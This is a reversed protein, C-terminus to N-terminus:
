IKEIMEHLAKGFAEKTFNDEYVKRGNRGIQQMQERNEIVFELKKQLEAADESRFTLGNEGDRLLGYTGTNDSCIVPVGLMLSETMFVPMPDDRSTCVVVDSQRYVDAIEERTVQMITRVSEPYDRQLLEIKHYVAEDNNKGVFVFLCKEIDERRMGRVADVFVDQAKRKDISGVSSIILKNKPNEIWYRYEAPLTQAYDPVCYLLEKVDYSPRYKKVVRCAYEGGAYVHINDTLSQPLVKNAGLQFSMEGDHIWWVVPINTQELQEINHYPVVTCVVILDFNSAWKLWETNGGITADVIVPIDDQLMEGVMPGDVPSLVTVFLGEEKLQKAMYQLAVPAGTMSMEHSLLLVSKVKSIDM